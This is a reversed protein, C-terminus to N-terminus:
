DEMISNGSIFNYSVICIDKNNGQNDIREHKVLVVDEDRCFVSATERYVCDDRNSVSWSDGTSCKMLDAWNVSLSEVESEGYLENLTFAVPSKENLLNGKFGGIERRLLEEYTESGRKMKDLEEKFATTVNLSKRKSKDIKM